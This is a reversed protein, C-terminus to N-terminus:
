FLFIGTNINIPRGGWLEFNNTKHYYYESFGLEVGKRRILVWDMYHLNDSDGDYDHPDITPRNLTNLERWLAAMNKEEADEEMGLLSIIHESNALICAMM